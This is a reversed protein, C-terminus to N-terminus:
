ELFLFKVRIKIVHKENEWFKIYGTRIRHNDYLFGVPYPVNKDNLCHNTKSITNKDWISNKMDQDSIKPSCSVNNTFSNQIKNDCDM